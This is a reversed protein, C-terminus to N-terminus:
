QATPETETQTPQSLAQALYMKIMCEHEIPDYFKCASEICPQMNAAESNAPGYTTIIPCIDFYDM